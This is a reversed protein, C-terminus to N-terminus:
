KNRLQVLKYKVLDAIAMGIFAGLIVDSPWHAGVCVRSAGVVIALTWTAWKIKPVLMGVMVLGAFTVTTHGSPMSNFAWDANFPYFGTMGLAEFFIPRARGIIIKLLKVVVGASLVSCFVFLAYSNKTKEFFDIAWERIKFNKVINKYNTDSGQAKKLYFLVLAIASIVLWVKADCVSDFLKWLGCDFGRMFLYLPKDFWFIGMLTLALTVLAGVGLLKWKMKNSTTLFM